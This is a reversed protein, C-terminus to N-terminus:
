IPDLDAAPGVVGRRPRAFRSFSRHDGLVRDPFIRLSDCGADTHVEPSGIGKLPVAM